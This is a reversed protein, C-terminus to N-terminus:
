KDQMDNAVSAVAQKVLEPFFLHFGIKRATKCMYLIRIIM